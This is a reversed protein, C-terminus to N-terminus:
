PKVYISILRPIISGIDIIWATRVIATNGNPGIMPIDVSFRQGHHDKMGITAPSKPLGAKIQVILQNGNSQNFGLASEFM